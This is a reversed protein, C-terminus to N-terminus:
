QRHDETFSEPATWFSWFALKSLDPSLPKLRSEGGIAKIASPLYECKATVGQSLGTIRALHEVRGSLQDRHPSCRFFSRRELGPM